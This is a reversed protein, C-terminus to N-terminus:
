SYLRQILTAGQVFSAHLQRARAATPEFDITVGTFLRMLDDYEHCDGLIFKRNMLIVSAVFHLFFSPRRQGGVFDGDHEATSMHSSHLSHSPHAGTWSSSPVAPASKELDRTETNVVLRDLREITSRMVNSRLMFGDDDTGTLSITRPGSAGLLGSFGTGAPGHARGGLLAEEEESEYAWCMEWLRLAEEVPLERRMLVVVMRYVFMPCDGGGEGLTQLKKYLQRDASKLVNGVVRLQEKIGKEDHQFNQRATRMLKEFMAFAIADDPEIAVFVAGLDSMGQCYGNEPDHVAYISLMNILRMTLRRAHRAHTKCAADVTATAFESAWIPQRGSAVQQRLKPLPSHVQQLGPLGDGVCLVPHAARASQVDGAADGTGTSQTSRRSSGERVDYNGNRSAGSGFITTWFVSTDWDGSEEIDLHEARVSDIVILRHAEAFSAYANSVEDLRGGGPPSQATLQETGVRIFGLSTPSGPSSCSSRPSRPSCQFRSPCQRGDGMHETIEEDADEGEGQGAEGQASIRECVFALKTTVHRLRRLESAREERTSGASFVDLLFPFLIRRSVPDAAVGYRKVARRIVSWNRIRGSGDWVVDHRSVASEISTLVSPSGGENSESTSASRQFLGM